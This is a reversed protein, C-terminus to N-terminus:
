ESPVPYNQDIYELLDGLAAAFDETSESDRAINRIAGLMAGTGDAFVPEAHAQLQENLRSAFGQLRVRRRLEQSDM